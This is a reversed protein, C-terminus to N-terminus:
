KPHLFFPDFGTVLIKKKSGASSFDVTTYGRTKEEFLQILENRDDPRQLLLPHSKLAVGMKLRSWYLIRDDPEVYKVYARARALLKSGYTNIKSIINSKAVADYSIQGIDRIFSEVIVKMTDPAGSLSGATDKAIFHDEWITKDTSYSNKRLAGIAEEYNRTYVSPLPTLESFDASVFTLDDLTFVKITTPEAKISIL